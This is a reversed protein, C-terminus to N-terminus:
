LDEKSVSEVISKVIFYLEEENEIPITQFTVMTKFKAVQRKLYKKEGAYEEYFKLGLFCSLNYM